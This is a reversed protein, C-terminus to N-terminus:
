HKADKRLQKLYLDIDNIPRFPEIINLETDIIAYIQEEDNDEMGYGDSDAFYIGDPYLTWSLATIGGTFNGWRSLGGYKLSKQCANNYGHPCGKRTAELDIEEDSILVQNNSSLKRMKGTQSNFAIFEDNNRKTFFIIGEGVHFGQLGELEPIGEIRVIRNDQEDVIIRFSKNEM